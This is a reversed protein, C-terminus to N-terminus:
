YIKKGNEFVDLSLGGFMKSALKAYSLADALTDSLMGGKIEKGGSFIKYKTMEEGVEM